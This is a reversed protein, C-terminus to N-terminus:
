HTMSKYRCNRDNHPLLQDDTVEYENQLLGVGQNVKRITHM